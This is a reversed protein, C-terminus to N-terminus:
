GTRLSFPLEKQLETEGKMPESVLHTDRFRGSKRSVAVLSQTVVERGRELADTM